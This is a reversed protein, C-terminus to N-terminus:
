VYGYFGTKKMNYISFTKSINGLCLWIVNIKLAMQKLNILIQVMLLYIVTQEM